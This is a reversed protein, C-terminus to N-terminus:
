AASGVWFSGFVGHEGTKVRNKLNEFKQKKPNKRFNSTQFTTLSIKLEKFIHDFRM